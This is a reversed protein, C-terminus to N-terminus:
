DGKGGKLDLTGAIEDQCDQYSKKGLKFTGNRQRNRWKKFYYKIGKLSNRLKKSSCIGRKYAYFDSM